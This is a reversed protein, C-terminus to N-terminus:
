TLNLYVVSGYSTSIKKFTFFCKKLNKCKIKCHPKTLSNKLLKLNYFACEIIIKPHSSNPMFNFYQSTTISFIKVISVDFIFARSRFYKSLEQKKPVCFKFANFLQWIKNHASECSQKNLCESSKMM